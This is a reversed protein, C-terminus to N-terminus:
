LCHSGLRSNERCAFIRCLQLPGDVRQKGLGASLPSQALAPFSQLPLHVELRELLSPYSGQCKSLGDGM